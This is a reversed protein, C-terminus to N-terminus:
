SSDSQSRNRNKESNNVKSSDSQSRSRNTESNDTKSSDTRPQNRTVESSNEADGSTSEKESSENRQPNKLVPFQFYKDDLEFSIPRHNSANFLVRTNGGFSLLHRSRNLRSNRRLDDCSNKNPEVSGVHVHSLNAKVKSNDRNNPDPKVQLSKAEQDSKAGPSIKSTSPKSIDNQQGGLSAEPPSKSGKLNRAAKKRNTADISRPFNESINPLWSLCDASLIGLSRLTDEDLDQFRNVGPTFSANESATNDAVPHKRMRPFKDKFQIPIQSSKTPSVANYDNGKNESVEPHTQHRKEKRLAKKRKRTGKTILAEVSKCLSEIEQSSDKMLISNICADTKLQAVSNLSDREYPVIPSSIHPLVSNKDSAPEDPNVSSYIHFSSFKNELSTEDSVEPQGGLSAEPPSKHGKPNREAKKRNTTDISRPFNESINPLWSLCDASLIGLSRLTDEDLDQFRNVGLTFSANESATKDAVPHKRMRPSKDKFQIPIQLTKTPSVVHYDNGRNEYVEPHLQHIKEKRLAKKRKRTGKTILAELSKCLSESEQSSDKMLISNICADTKLQAVSNLSDREFPVIPSSIHPLVSNKDSAHEDPNVSSYIHFSSFKNELSTEDSIEPNSEKTLNEKSESAIVDLVTHSSIQGLGDKTYSTSEEPVTSGSIQFTSFKREFPINETQTPSFAQFNYAKNERDKLQLRNRQKRVSNKQGRRKGTSKEPLKFLLEPGESSLRESNRSVNEYSFIGSPLLSSIESASEGPIMLNSIPPLDANRGSTNEDPNVPNSIQLSGIKIQLSTEDSVELSSIQTSSTKSESVSEEPVVLSSIGTSNDKTESATKDSATSIFKNLLSAKNELGTVDSVKPCSILMLNIKGESSCEGPFVPRSKQTLNSKSESACEDSIVSSSIRSSIDKSKSTPQDSIVSNLKQLSCTKSQLGTKHFVDPNSKEPTNVKCDSQLEEANPHLSHQSVNENQNHTSSCPLSDENGELNEKRDTSIKTSNEKGYNQKSDSHFESGIDEREPSQGTEM